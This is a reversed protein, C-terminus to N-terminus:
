GNERKLSDSNKIDVPEIKDAPTFNFIKGYFYLEAELAREINQAQRFGHGEGEFPVYATAIGKNILADFMDEAQNPPVVKDDLGQFFIVPCNLKEIHNIPSRNSYIDKAAPWPGVLGDLYRSEFKHTDNALTQLDGIGYLSCGAKFTDSFALAALVTYGGASSGKIAIREPDALGQKVLFDAGACVDQVDSIGWNNKLKDRYERGYGTSGRYNVDLVAFGRSCWYQIKLNLSSETAGTPGGHALIVLPPKEDQLPQCDPNSPSYYFGHAIEKNDTDSSKNGTPFTVAQPSSLYRADFETSSSRAVIHQNEGEILVLEAAHTSAAGLFAINGNSANLASIDSYPSDLQSLMHTEFDICALHWQGNQSYCCLLNDADIFSYCSMGFVWQPTAFEAAMEFVCETELDTGDNSSNLRYLNWWNNKDSVWYLQGDPSWSPQFCSEPATADGGAIKRAGSLKLDADIDACWVQTNDWPMDPHNWSLWSLKTGDPSLRPNSYFDCGQQLIRTDGNILNIAVIQHQEQATHDTGKNSHDERIAILQQRQADVSLDAYRYPGTATIAKATAQESNSDISYIRQDDALVFYVIGQHVCYHGGGYEHAKSRVNIPAPTVDTTQGDRSRKVICTRGKEQPRSELWYCNHNFDRSSDQDFQPEALRVSQATLAQASIPSTWSGCPAQIPSTNSTAHTM